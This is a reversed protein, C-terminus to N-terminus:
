RFTKDYHDIRRGIWSMVDSCLILFEEDSLHRKCINAIECVWRLNGIDDGGGKAKPVIHDLQASRDLKRGTLACLGRQEHWMRALQKYNAREMGRLKMARGWFFRKAYYLRMGRCNRERNAHHWNRSKQRMLDPNAAWRRAMCERKAKRVQEITRGM